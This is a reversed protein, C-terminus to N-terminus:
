PLVYRFNVFVMGTHAKDPAGAAVFWPKRDVYSYQTM